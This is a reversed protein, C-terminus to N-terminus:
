RFIENFKRIILPRSELLKIRDVQLAQKFQEPTHVMFPKEKEGIKTNPNTPGYWLDSALGAQAEATLARDIFAYAVDRNGPGGKVLAATGTISFYGEKLNKAMAVPAGKEIYKKYYSPIDPVMVAEGVQFLESTIGRNEVFSHLNPKLQMLKPWAMELNGEGGGNLMAAMVTILLGQTQTALPIIIKEKYQPAWLDNWSKPANIAKHNYMITTIYNFFGIGYGDAVVYMPHIEKAHPMKSLDLRDLIGERFLTIAGIDDLFIVDLQPDSKQARAKAISASTNGHEVIVKAGTEKVFPDVIHKQIVLGDASGWFQARLTEGSFDAAVAFSM